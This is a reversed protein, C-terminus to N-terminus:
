RRWFRRAAHPLRSNAAPLRACSLVGTPRATSAAPLTQDACQAFPLCPNAFARGLPEPDPKRKALTDGCVVCAARRLLGLKRSRQLKGAFKPFDLGFRARMAKAQEDIWRWRPEFAPDRFAFAVHNGDDAIPLLIVNDGFVASMAQLNAMMPKIDIDMTATIDLGVIKKPNNTMLKVSRITLSKLMHAAIAYDREDDRFGLALNAEVAQELVDVEDTVKM